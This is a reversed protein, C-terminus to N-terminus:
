DKIGRIKRYLKKIPNGLPSFIIAGAVLLAVMFAAMIGKAISEDPVFEAFVWYLGIAGVIFALQKLTKKNAESM